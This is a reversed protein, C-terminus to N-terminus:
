SSRSRVPTSDDESVMRATEERSYEELLQAVPINYKVRGAAIERLATVGARNDSAVTSPAGRELERARRAALTCLAFPNSEHELCDEVTVRAMPRRTQVARALTTPRTIVATPPM